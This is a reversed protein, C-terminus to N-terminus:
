LLLRLQVKVNETGKLADIQKGTARWRYLSDLIPGDIDQSGSSVDIAAKVAVGERNFWISVIPPKGRTTIQTLMDFMPRRTKLQIGRAPVLKGNQWDKPLTEIKSAAPSELDSVDGEGGTGPTPSSGTGGGQGSSGPAADKPGDVPKLPSAVGGGEPAVPTPPTIPSADPPPVVDPPKTTDKPPTADAPKIDAPKLEAPKPEVPKVEAPKIEVAKVDQPPAIPPAVPPPPAGDPQPSTPQPPEPQTGAPPAPLPAPPTVPPEPPTVPPTIPPTLTPPATPAPTVDKAPVVPPLLVPKDAPLTEPSGDSNRLVTTVPANPASGGGGEGGGDEGRGINPTGKGGADGMRYAAQDVESLRAMHEEYADRGIVVLSTLDGDDSGLTVEETEPYAPLPKQPEPAPPHEPEEKPPDEQAKPEEAKPEEKKPEPKPEQKAEPKPEDKPAPKPEDKPKPKEESKAKQKDENEAPNKAPSAKKAVSKTESQQFLAALQPSFFFAHIGISVAAGLTLVLGTREVNVKPAPM